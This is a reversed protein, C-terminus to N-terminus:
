ANWSYYSLRWTNVCNYPWPSNICFVFTSSCECFCKVIWLCHLVLGTFASSRLFRFAVSSLLAYSRLLFLLLSLFFTFLPLYISSVHYYQTLRLYLAALPLRRHRMHRQLYSDATTPSANDRRKFIISRSLLRCRADRWSRNRLKRWAVFNSWRQRM